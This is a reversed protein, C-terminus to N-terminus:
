RGRRRALLAVAEGRELIELDGRALLRELGQASTANALVLRATGDDAVLVLPALSYLAQTYLKAGAEGALPVDCLYGVRGAGPLLPRVAAYRADIRERHAALLTAPKEVGFHFWGIRLAGLVLLAAWLTAAPDRARRWAALPPRM